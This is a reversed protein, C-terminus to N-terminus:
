RLNRVTIDFWSMEPLRIDTTMNEVIDARFLVLEGAALDGIISFAAGM